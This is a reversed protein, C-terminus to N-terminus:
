VAVSLVVLVFSLRSLLLSQPSPAASETAVAPDLWSGDLVRLPGSITRKSDTATGGNTSADCTLPIIKPAKEGGGLM